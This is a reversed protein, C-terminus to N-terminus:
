KSGLTWEATLTDADHRQCKVALLLPPKILQKFKRQYRADLLEMEKIVKVKVLERKPGEKLVKDYGDKEAFEFNASLLIHLPQNVIQDLKAPKILGGVRFHYTYEYFVIDEIADIEKRILDIFQRVRAKGKYCKCEAFAKLCKECFM